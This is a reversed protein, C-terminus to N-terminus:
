PLDDQLEDVMSKEGGYIGYAKELWFDKSEGAVKKNEDTM